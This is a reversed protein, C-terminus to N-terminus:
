AARRQRAAAGRLEFGACGSVEFSVPLEPLSALETPLVLVFAGGLGCSALLKSPDHSRAAVYVLPGTARIARLPAGQDPGGQVLALRTHLASWAALERSLTTPVRMGPLLVSCGGTRALELAISGAARVAADLLECARSSADLRADLVVLPRAQPETILRRELLGAGRALAPWHIRSAPSGPVYPRLGDVEGAGTPEAVASAAHGRTRTRRETRRWRIPETRPLVLVEEDAGQAATTVCALSLADSIMLSPPGFVQRGRRRLRTVVRLEIRRAGVLLALPEGLPVRADAIPEIVQAGPLGLPGRRVILTLELPEDELVRQTGLRRTVGGSKAALMVWVPVLAGLILFGVGAVLLPAAGFTFAALVILAGALAVM